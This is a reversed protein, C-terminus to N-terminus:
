WQSSSLPEMDQSLLLKFTVHLCETNDWLPSVVSLHSGCTSLARQIGHVSPLKLGNSFIYSYSGHPIYFTDSIDTCGWHLGHPWQCLNDSCSLKLIPYPDCFFHCVASHSCFKLHLLLLTHRVAHLNTIVWSVAVLLACFSDPGWAWPTTSHVVSTQTAMIPWSVWSSGTWTSSTVSFHM